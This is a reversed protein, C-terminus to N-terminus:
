ETAVGAGWLRRRVFVAWVHGVGDLLPGLPGVAHDRAASTGAVGVAEGDDLALTAWVDPAALRAGVGAVMDEPAAWGPAFAEYTAFGEAIVSAIAAADAATAERYAIAGPM